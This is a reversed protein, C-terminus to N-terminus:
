DFALYSNSLSSLHRDTPLLRDIITIFSRINVPFSLRILEQKLLSLHLYYDEQPILLRSNKLCLKPYKGNFPSLKYLLVTVGYVSQQQEDIANRATFIIRNSQM